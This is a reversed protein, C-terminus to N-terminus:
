WHGSTKVQHPRRAEGCRIDGRPQSAKLLHQARQQRGDQQCGFCPGRSTVFHRRCRRNTRVAGEVSVGPGRRHDHAVTADKWSYTDAAAAYDLQGLACNNVTPRGSRMPLFQRDKTKEHSCHGNSLEISADSTALTELSTGHSWKVWFGARYADRKSARHRKSWHPIQQDLPNRVGHRRPQPTPPLRNASSALRM